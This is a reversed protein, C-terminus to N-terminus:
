SGILKEYAEQIQKFRQEALLQFEEGLHAVKDPHYQGALQRYAAKVEDQSAGPRLGLIEYPTKPVSRNQNDQDQSPDSSHQRNEFPPKVDSSMKKMKAFYRYLLVLVIIDDIWALGHIGPILDYPSLLYILALITWIWAM